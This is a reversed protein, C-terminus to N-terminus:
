YNQAADVFKDYDDGLLKKLRYTSREMRKWTTRAHQEDETAFVENKFAEYGDALYSADMLLCHIVDAVCPDTVATGTFYDLSYLRRQFRLTVRWNFNPITWESRRKAEGIRFEARVNFERCLADLTLPEPAQFRTPSLLLDTNIALDRAINWVANGTERSAANYEDVFLASRPTGNGGIM